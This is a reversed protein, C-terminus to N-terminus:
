DRLRFGEALELIEMGPEPETQCALVREPAGGPRAIKMACQECNGALCFRTFDITLRGTVLGWFQLGRWLNNRDPLRLEQDGYRVPVLDNFPRLLDLAMALNEGEAEPFAKALEELTM